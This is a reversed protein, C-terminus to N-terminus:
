YRKCDIPLRCHRGMVTRAVRERQPTTTIPANVTAKVALGAKVAAGDVPSWCFTEAATRAAASALSLIVNQTVKLAFAVKALADALLVLASRPASTLRWSM